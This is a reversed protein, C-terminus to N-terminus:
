FRGTCGSLAVQAAHQRSVCVLTGLPRPPSSLSVRTVFVCPQLPVTLCLGEHKLRPDRPGSLQIFWRTDCLWSVVPGSGLDGRAGPGRLVETGPSGPLGGFPSGLKTVKFSQGIDELLRDVHQGFQWRSVIMQCSGIVSTRLGCQWGRRGARRVVSPVSVQACARWM